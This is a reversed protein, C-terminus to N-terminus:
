HKGGSLSSKAALTSSYTVDRAEVAVLRRSRSTVAISLRGLLLLTRRWKWKATHAMRKSRATEGAAVNIQDPLPVSSLQPVEALQAPFATGAFSPVAAIRKAPVFRSEGDRGNSEVFEAM